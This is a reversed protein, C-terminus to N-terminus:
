AFMAHVADVGHETSTVALVVEGSGREVTWRAWSCCENEVAVLADLEEAVGEGARFFVRKGEPTKVQRLEAKARLERWRRAQADLGAEGLTCAVVLGGETSPEDAAM